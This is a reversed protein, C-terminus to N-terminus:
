PHQGLRRQYDQRALHNEIVIEPNLNKGKGEPDHLKEYFYGGITLTLGVTLLAVCAWPIVPIVGVLSFLGLAGLAVYSVDRALNICYLTQKAIEHRQTKALNEMQELAANGAGGITALSNLGKIWTMISSDISIFRLSFDIGDAVSNTLSTCKKFVQRAARGIKECSSSTNTLDVWFEKCAGIAETMKKPVETAGVFNKFDGMMSSFSRVEHPADPIAQGTWFAIYGLAKAVDKTKEEFFKLVAGAVTYEEPKYVPSSVTTTSTFANSSTTIPHTTMIEKKETLPTLIADIIPSLGNICL